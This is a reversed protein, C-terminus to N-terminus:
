CMTKYRSIHEKRRTSFSKKTEGTNDMSIICLPNQPYGNSQLATNIRATERPVIHLDEVFWCFTLEKLNIEDLPWFLGLYDLVTDLSWINNYKPVTKIMNFASKLYRCLLFHKGVPTRDQVDDGM